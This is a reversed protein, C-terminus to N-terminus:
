WDYFTQKALKKVIKIDDKIQKRLNQLPFGMRSSEFRFWSTSTLKKIFWEPLKRKAYQNECLILANPASFIIASIKAYKNTAFRGYYDMHCLNSKNGENCNLTQGEFIGMGKKSYLAYWLENSYFGEVSGGLQRGSFVPSFKHLRDGISNMYVDQLDIWLVSPYKKSFQSSESKVNYIKRIVTQTTTYGDKKGYPCYSIENIHIGGSSDKQNYFKKLKSAEDQNIQITNVEIFVKDTDSIVEFDATQEGKKTKIPNVKEKIFTNILCDYCRIEGLAGSANTIDESLIDKKKTQLWKNDKNQLQLIASFTNHKTFGFYGTSDTIDSILYILPHIIGSQYKEVNNIENNDIFGNFEKISNVM